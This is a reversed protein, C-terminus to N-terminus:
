LTYPHGYGLSFKLRCETSSAVVCQHTYMGSNLVLCPVKLLFWPISSILFHIVLCKGTWSLMSHFLTMKIAIKTTCLDDSSKKYFQPSFPNLLHSDTFTNRLWYYEYNVLRRFVNKLFYKLKILPENTALQFCDSPSAKISLKPNNFFLGALGINRDIWSAHLIKCLQTVIKM